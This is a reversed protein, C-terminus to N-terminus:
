KRPGVLELPNASSVSSQGYAAALGAPSKTTTKV